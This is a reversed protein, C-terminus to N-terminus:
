PRTTVLVKIYKKKIILIVNFSTFHVFNVVKIVVQIILDGFHFCVLSWCMVLYLILWNAYLEFPFDVM